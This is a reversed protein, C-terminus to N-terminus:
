PGFCSGIACPGDSDGDKVQPTDRLSKKNKAKLQCRGWHGPQCVDRVTPTQTDERVHPRVRNTTAGM